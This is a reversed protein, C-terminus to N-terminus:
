NKEDIEKWQLKRNLIKFIEANVNKYDYKLSANWANRAYTQYNESIKVFARCISEVTGDTEESDKGFQVAEKIGGVNTSIVPLSYSLAELITMPIGEYKSNMIMVDADALYEGVKEPQVAGVFHIRGEGAAAKELHEREEGDGVITFSRIVDSKKIAEIVPLLNKGDSIRGAYVLRIKGDKLSREIFERCHISNCVRYIRKTYNRYEDETSKDLVFNGDAKKIVQMLYFQFLKQILPFRNFFRLKKWMGVYSGHSFVFCSSKPCLIHIIGFAEPTQFYNLDQKQVYIKKRYKYIGKAYALRLSKKVNSLDTEIQAVPLFSIKKQNVTVETIKGIENLDCSAGVLLVRDIYDSQYETLYQLFNGVSTLQGGIPYDRFNSTDYIILRSEM